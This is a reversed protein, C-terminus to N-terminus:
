VFRIEHMAQLVLLLFLKPHTSSCGPTVATVACQVAQMGLAGLSASVARCCTPLTALGVSAGFCGDGLGLAGGQLFCLCTEELCVSFNLIGDVVFWAAGLAAVWLKERSYKVDFDMKRCEFLQLPASWTGTFQFDLLIWGCGTYGCRWGCGPVPNRSSCGHSGLRSRSCAAATGLHPSLIAVVELKRFLGPAAAPQHRKM